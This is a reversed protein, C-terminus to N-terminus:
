WDKDPQSAARSRNQQMKQQVEQEKQQLSKLYQEIQKKSFKTQRPNQKEQKKPQEKQQEQQQKNANQQKRLEELAKQLNVRADEDAPNLKLASKYADISELLKKQKSLAVGKNYFAMQKFAPDESETLTGEYAKESAGFENRRFQLNGLNYQVVPNNPQAAVAKEMEPLAKEYQGQKYLQNSKRLAPNDAKETKVTQASATTALLSLGIGIIYSPYRM